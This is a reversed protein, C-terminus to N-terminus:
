SLRLKSLAAPGGWAGQPDRAAGTSIGNLSGLGRAGRAAKQGFGTRPCKARDVDTKYLRRRAGGAQIRRLRNSEGRLRMVLFTGDPPLFGDLEAMGKIADFGGDFRQALEEFYHTLCYQADRSAPLEEAISVAAATLLREVDGMAEVLRSRQTETLPNLISQALRDSCRGLEGLESLGASTLEAQRVRKDRPDPRTTVLEQRELSRLLRSLYGLDLDLRARLEGATAGAEGIEFM